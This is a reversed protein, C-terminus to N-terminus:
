FIEGDPILMQKNLIYKNKKLYFSSIALIFAEFLNINRETEEYDKEYMFIYDKEEISRIISKRIRNGVIINKYKKLYPEPLNLDKIICYLIVNINTEYFKYDNLNKNIYRIRATLPALNSGLAETQIEINKFKHKLFVDEPRQTYPRLNNDKTNKLFVVDQNECLEVGLCSKNDCVICPPISLPANTIIYTNAENKLNKLIEILKIDLKNKTNLDKLSESLFIRKEDDYYDLVSISTYPNQSGTLRLGIFRDKNKFTNM